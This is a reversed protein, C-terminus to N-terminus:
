KKNLCLVAYSTRMLSQLESTHEESRQQLGARVRDGHLHSQAVAVGGVDAELQRSETQEARVLAGSRHGRDGGSRKEGVVGDLEAPRGHVVRDGVPHSTVAGLDAEHGSGGDGELDSSCVDSSWVSIRM